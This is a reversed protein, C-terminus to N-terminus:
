KNFFLFVSKHACDLRALEVVLLESELIKPLRLLSFVTVLGSSFLRIATETGSASISSVAGFIKGRRELVSLGSSNLAWADGDEGACGESDGFGGSDTEGMVVSIRDGGIVVTSWDGFARTAEPTADGISSSSVWDFTNKGSEGAGVM